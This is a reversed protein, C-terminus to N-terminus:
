ISKKMRRSRRWEHVGLMGAGLLGGYLSAPLPVTPGGGSSITANAYIELQGGMDIGTTLNPRYRFQFFDGDVPQQNYWTSVDTGGFDTNAFMGQDTAAGLEFGMAAFMAPNPSMYLTDLTDPVLNYTYTDGNNTTVTMSGGNVSGAMFQINGTINSISGTFGVNPNNDIDVSMVTNSNEAFSLHGTFTSYNSITIPSSASITVANIDLHLQTITDAQAGSLGYIFLAIGGAGLQCLGIRSKRSRRKGYLM